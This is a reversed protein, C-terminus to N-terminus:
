TKFVDFYKCLAPIYITSQYPHVKRKITVNYEIDIYQEDPCCPYYRVYRKKTVKLIDWESHASAVEVQSFVIIVIRITLPLLKSQQYHTDCLANCLACRVNSVYTVRWGCGYFHRFKKKGIILVYNTYIHM